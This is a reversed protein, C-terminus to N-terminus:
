SDRRAQSIANVTWFAFDLLNNSLLYLDLRFKSDFNCDSVLVLINLTKVYDCSTSFQLHSPLM